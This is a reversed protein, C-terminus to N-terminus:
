FRCHHADKSSWSAARIRMSMHSPMIGKSSTLWLFDAIENSLPTEKTLAFPLITVSTVPIRKTVRSPIGFGYVLHGNGTFAVVKRHHRGAEIFYDALSEAMFEEYVCQAEYFFEFSPIRTRPHMLYANRVYERHARVSLDIQLPLRDREEPTLGGIGVRAVRKVLEQPVNLALIRSGNERALSILPRYLHYPYGWSTDWEVAKLFEREDMEGALYSDLVPQQPTRFFEMAVDVPGCCAMLAQLIQVQILHHEANNHIEGVFVLDNPALKEILSQFDLHTATHLDIIDDSSFRGEAGQIWAIPPAKPRSPACGAVVLFSVLLPIVTVHNFRKM